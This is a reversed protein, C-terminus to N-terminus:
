KGLDNLLACCADVCCARSRVQKVDFARYPINPPSPVPGISKYSDRLEAVVQEHGFGGPDVAAAPM